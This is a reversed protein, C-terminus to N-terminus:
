FGEKYKICFEYAEKYTNFEFLFVEKASPKFFRDFDNWYKFVLANAYKEDDLHKIIFVFVKEKREINMTKGLVFQERQVVSSFELSQVDSTSNLESYYLKYRKM